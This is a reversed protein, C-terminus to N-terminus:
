FLFIFLDQFPPFSFFSVDSCAHHYMDKNGVSLLDLCNLQLNSVLSAVCCSRDRGCCCCLNGFLETPITTHVMTGSLLGLYSAVPTCSISSAQTIIYCSRTPVTPPPKPLITDSSRTKNQREEACPTPPEQPKGNETLIAHTEMLAKAQIPNLITAWSLHLLLIAVVNAKLGPQM